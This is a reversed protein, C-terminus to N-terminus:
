GEAEPRAVVVFQYAFLRKWVRACGYAVVEAARLIWTGSLRPMALGFPTTTPEVSEIRFGARGLLDAWGDWTFFRVHTRDFLGKDAQPFRGLLVMCRFYAHGSNPLSAVLRGRPALRERCDLLLRLPDRVHELVDACIIYDYGAGVSGLGEELNAARFEIAASPQTGPLDVGTVSYGRGALIEGLFGSACGVDLVRRGEGPEPLRDLLLSHSSYEGEKFQYRANLDAEAVPM